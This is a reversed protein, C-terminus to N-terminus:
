DIDRSLEKALQEPWDGAAIITNWELNKWATEQDAHSPLLLVLRFQKWVLEAEAAVSGDIELEYGVEDPTPLGSDRMKCLDASLLDMAQSIVYDWSAATSATHVGHLVHTDGYVALHAYDSADLGSATALLIGPLAQFINFLWLWRRWALHFAPEDGAESDALIVYGPSVPAPANLNFIAAPLWYRFSVGPEQLNGCAVSNPARECHLQKGAWFRELTTRSEESGPAAPQPVMRLATVGAHRVINRVQKDDNKGPVSGLLRILVAVAHDAWLSADWGLRRPDDLKAIPNMCLKEICDALVTETQGDLASQVDEWTVTWVYFRGSAVLASRKLADARVVGQHYAWGDCFVAIPLRDSMTQTSWIVFDPRSAEMVGYERGLDVQPEVWYRQTGVELLYGSKGRVIEQVMKVFPLGGQGSLRCLCEIFRVELPSGVNPNIRIEAISAISELQDIQAVLEEFISRALDRSVNAFNRSTRHQYVCRYCGDKAPNLNCACGKLGTLALRLVEKLVKADGSLLTHLYGTGGPVSDYILVYQRNAAGDRGAEEQTVLRLHDVKGGFRMKMGFRLAAMFSQVSAESVGSKTYPVLIRLAESSFERYLYLCDIINSATSSARWECDFAHLQGHEWERATRPARQVKGCKKCLKFGPRPKKQGAVNFSQGTKTPDGFNVDRFVVHEIFEFGFPMDPTKLRHADRIFEPAIDALLQREYFKPERDEASDDIRAETDNSNAIAQKFRLLQQKQSTNAWMPDGCRPCSANSDARLELNEMHQCTPCLRWSELSSLEMNIQDIEVRRQNAFFINEPAFESLASHAPREYREAPLVISPAAGVPDDSVRNRWLLSKLEVGAEPFAYNPILGADTLTNLLERQNIEKVLELTKQRERELEGQESKTAEDQPRVALLRLQKRINEGRDRHSKREKALEEVLKSLRLRLSDEVTSGQMFNDLRDAVRSDLDDGLLDKFEALLRDSNAHVYDLFTYPFRTLDLSDRANLADQTKDPLATVQVGSGVWEDLCFAFMQRRLVEAAKLFIGPPQVDGSLMESTDDFFYLDHPSSGDALTITLANGDRRGARGTRQLYNAQNPPVTCLLVSSLDGIDVGLELTPTASLLNEHWPHAIQAKFRLELAERQDHQLLSTHEASFVRRIQGRSFQKALWGDARALESYTEHPAGLCPMGVLAASSNSPVVLMRKGQASVLRVLNTDLTLAGQHICFADGNDTEIRKLVGEIILADIAREYIAQDALHPLLGTAGLTASLWTQYFTKNPPKLLPDFGRQACLSLFKPHASRDGMGPLWEARGHRNAFAFINGDSAYDAMESHFVAGCRRLHCLFGWLFWVVESVQVHRMGFSEHLAPLLAAATRQLVGISPALTAKGIAELNRGQGSLYTFEAFAQWALRKEVRGPLRSGPPLANRRQLAEAWDRQWTMNPGIFESVFRDLPMHLPSGAKSWERGAHELFEAWGCEPRAILDILQALATRVTNMYTRASFFGARHAADQVSDSFAILKKDDNFPSAWTQEIAVAGLTTSRAGMLIQRKANGCVPCAADHWTYAIGARTTTTRMATVRFVDVLVGHGCGTCKGPGSQLNGCGACLRQPVGACMPSAMGAAGYMRVVEPQDAFWSNYIQNLDTSVKSHGAPMRSLWGTTHCDACQVLPLYVRDTERRTDSDARLEIKATDPHVLTVLRRLERMWLQVRLTVLPRGAADRAWAVLALLADFIRSVHAQASEPVALYMQHHLDSCLAVQGDTKKLLLVFLLHKRVLGGLASRWVPSDVDDPRELEPFFMKFWAAIAEQQSSYRTEDLIEEFNSSPELVYEIQHGALFEAETLRNETIVAAPTFPVGFIQRAYERLPETDTNTGLTASTGACIFHGAPTKLRARLRRLLLALDTGQAGDFTHLEDVIVYRLSHPSNRSWLLRDKPRILLYDLMKYNTLLVDPPDKRMTERDTIVSSATMAMMGRADKGARGGVFLGVRLGHFAPTQSIVQAFRRAQDTALANMPYVVLAKIGAEASANARACHDLVPYLFCETKGSGTGTAVLMNDADRDSAFRQWAAEQHFFGPHAMVFRDWFGTGHAGARFPLGVQVYPGKIWRAEDEIFRQVVGAFLPDSPEFGSTLFHRVGNQIERALLSPLM